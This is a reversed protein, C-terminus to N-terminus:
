YGIDTLHNTKLLRFEEAVLRDYTTAEEDYGITKFIARAAEYIIAYPQLEAIWSSYNAETVVPLVYCAFLAYKIKTSCRIHMNRGAVYAVNIRNRNYSDLVQEPSIIEIFKGNQDAANEVVRLYKAARMNSILSHTDFSQIYDAESFQIGTEYIDKSYFDPSHAKLTAARIASKTRAELDERNTISYVEQLLEDFTM